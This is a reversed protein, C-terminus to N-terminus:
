EDGKLIESRLWAKALRWERNVTALSIGLAEAIEENSLGAFFRLEVIRCQREDMAALTELADNLASLDFDQKEPTGIAEDLSLKIQGGGRKETEKLAAYEMLVYRMTKAAFGFFHARNQWDTDEKGVLRMYAEHVLATTQLTHGPRQKRLYNSAIRRLEDYVIPMLKDLASKDGSRWDQLMQTVDTASATMLGGASRKYFRESLM